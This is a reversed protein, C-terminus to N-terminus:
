FVYMLLAVIKEIGAFKTAALSDEPIPNDSGRIRMEFFALVPAALLTGVFMPLYALGTQYPTFRYVRGLIVPLSAYLIFVVVQDMTVNALTVPIIRETFLMKVPRVFATRLAKRLGQRPHKQAKRQIEKEFTEPVFVMMVFCAGVLIATLWFSWRWGHRAVISEGVLPGITPAVAGSLGYLLIIPVAMADEPMKWMDNLLGAFVTVAPSGVIGAIARSVALTRFNTAAGAVLTFILHLFLSTKYIYQRGFEESLASTCMPGITFGIAYLTVPSIALTKSVHFEEMIGHISGIYISTAM